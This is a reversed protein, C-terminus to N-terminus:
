KKRISYRPLFEVKAYPGYSGQQTWAIIYNDDTRVYLDGYQAIAPQGNSTLVNNIAALNPKNRLLLLDLGNDDATIFNKHVATAFYNCSDQSSKTYASGKLTEQANLRSMNGLSLVAVIIVIAFTVRKM